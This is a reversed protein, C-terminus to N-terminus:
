GYFTKYIMDNIDQNTKVRHTWIDAYTKNMEDYFAKISKLRNQESKEREIWMNLCFSKADERERAFYECVMQEIDRWDDDKKLIAKVDSKSLNNAKIYDILLKEGEESLDTIYYPILSLSENRVINGNGDVPYTREKYALTRKESPGMFSTHEESLNPPEIFGKDEVTCVPKTNDTYVFTDRFENCDTNSFFNYPNFYSAHSIGAGGQLSLSGDFNKIIM